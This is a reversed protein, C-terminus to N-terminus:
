IKTAYSEERKITGFDSFSRLLKPQAFVAEIKAWHIKIM